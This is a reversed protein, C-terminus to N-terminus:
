YSNGRTILHWRTGPLMDYGCCLWLALIWLWHCSGRSPLRLL